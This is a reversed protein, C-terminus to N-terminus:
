SFGGLQGLQEVHKALEEMKEVMEMMSYMFTALGLGDTRELDNTGFTSPGSIQSLEQRVTKLKPLITGESGCKKMKKISEGLERLTWALSAVIADCPEKM